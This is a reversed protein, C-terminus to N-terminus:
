KAHTTSSWRMFMVWTMRPSTHLGETEKRRKGKRGEQKKWRTNAKLSVSMALFPENGCGLVDGEVLGKAPRRGDKGVEAQEDVGVAGLEALAVGVYVEGLVLRTADEGGRQQGPEGVESRGELGIDLRRTGTSSM